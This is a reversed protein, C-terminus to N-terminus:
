KANKRKKTKANKRKKTKANKRKQMKTNKRKQTKKGGKLPSATRTLRRKKQPYPINRKQETKYNDYLYSIINFAANLYVYITKKLDPNNNKDLITYRQVMIPQDNEDYVTEIKFNYKNIDWPNYTNIFNFIMNNFKFFSIKQNSIIGYINGIINMMIGPACSKKTKIKCEKLVVDDLSNGYKEEYLHLLQTIINTKGPVKYKLRPLTHYYLNSPELESEETLITDIYKNLQKKYSYPTVRSKYLLSRSAIIEMETMGYYSKHTTNEM